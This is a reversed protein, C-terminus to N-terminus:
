IKSDKKLEPLPVEGVFQIKGTQGSLDFSVTYRRQEYELACSFETLLGKEDLAAGTISAGDVPFVAAQLIQELGATTTLFSAADEFSDGGMLRLTAVQQAGRQLVRAKSAAKSSRAEEVFVEARPLVLCVVMTAVLLISVVRIIGWPLKVKSLSTTM